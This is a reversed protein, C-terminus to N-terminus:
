RPLARVRTQWETGEVAELLRADSTVLMGGSSESATLYFCDYVPHRLARAIESARGALPTLPLLSHFMGGIREGIAQTQDLSLKRLRWLRWAANCVEAVILDPAILERERLIERAADSGEEAVFWKFAVSADVVATV